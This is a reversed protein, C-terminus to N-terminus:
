TCDITLGFTRGHVTCISRHESLVPVFQTVDRFYKWGGVYGAIRPDMSDWDLVGRDYLLTARHVERGIASKRELIDARVNKYDDWGGTDIVRTCGPIEVGTKTITYIHSDEDFTFEPNAM